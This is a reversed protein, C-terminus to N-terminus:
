KQPSNFVCTSYFFIVFALSVCFLLFFLFVSLDSLFHPSLLPSLSSLGNQSSYKSRETRFNSASTIIKNEDDFEVNPLISFRPYSMACGAPIYLWIFFCRIAIPFFQNPALQDGNEILLLVTRTPRQVIFLLSYTEM